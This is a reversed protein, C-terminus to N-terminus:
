FKFQFQLPKQKDCKYHTKGKEDVRRECGLIINTNRSPCLTCGTLFLILVLAAFKMTSVM